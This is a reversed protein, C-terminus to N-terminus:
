TRHVSHADAAPGSYPCARVKENHGHYKLSLWQSVVAQSIRAEQAVIDQSLKHMKMYARMDLVLLEDSQAISRTTPVKTLAGLKPYTPSVGGANGVTCAEDAVGAASAADM